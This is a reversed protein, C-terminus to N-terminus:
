YFFVIGAVLFHSDIGRNPERLDANSVHRFRYGVNLATEKRFFYYGGAGAQSSFNWKRSQDSTEVTIYLVGSAACAHVFWRDTVPHMYQLGISFGFELDHDPKTVANVQPEVYLTFLGDTRRAAPVWKGLDMGAHFVLPITDYGGEAIQAHGFGTLVGWERFLSYKGEASKELYVDAANSPGAAAALTCFVICVWLGTPDLGDRQAM